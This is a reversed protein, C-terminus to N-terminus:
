KRFECALGSECIEITVAKGRGISDRSSDITVYHAHCYYAITLPHVSLSVVANDLSLYTLPPRYDYHRNHEIGVIISLTRRQLLILDYARADVRKRLFVARPYQTSTYTITFNAYGGEWETTLGDSVTVISFRHVNSARDQSSIVSKIVVRYSRGSFLFQNWELM